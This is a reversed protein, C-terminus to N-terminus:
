TDPESLRVEGNNQNRPDFSDPLKFIAPRGERTLEACKYKLGHRQQEGKGRGNMIEYVRQDSLGTQACIQTVTAARGCAVIADLVRLEADTYKDASHGGIAKFLEQADRFDEETAILRGNEDSSRIGYRLVALGKIMDGLMGYGRNDGDYVIRDAFPIIVDFEQKHMDAVICQCVSIDFAMVDPDDVGMDQLKMHEQVKKKHEPTSSVEIMIFRDRIQEDGQNDVSTVWFTLRKQAEFECGEQEKVTARKVREQFRATIQKVSVGLDDNWKLDDIGIITGPEFGDRHYFLAQPTVNGPFRHNVDVLHLAKNVADTKGSGRPGSALVHLGKTNTSCGVATSIILIKGLEEDGYHMRQWTSYLFEYSTGGDIIEQAKAIVEPSFEQKQTKMQREKAEAEVLEFQIGAKSLQGKYKALMRIAKDVDQQTLKDGRRLKEALDNGFESDYKSYGRGDRTEAGDCASSMCLLAAEVTQQPVSVSTSTGDTEREDKM